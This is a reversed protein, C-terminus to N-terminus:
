RYKIMRPVRSVALKDVKYNFFSEDFSEVLTGRIIIDMTWPIPM